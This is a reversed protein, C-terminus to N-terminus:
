LIVRIVLILLRRYIGIHVRYRDIKEDITDVIKRKEKTKHRLSKIKKDFLHKESYAQQLGEEREQLSRFWIFM